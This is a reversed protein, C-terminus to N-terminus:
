GDAPNTGRLNISVAVLDERNDLLRFAFSTASPFPFVVRM